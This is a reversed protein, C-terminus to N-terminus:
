SDALVYSKNEPKPLTAILKKTLKIKSMFKKDYIDISYPFVLGDCSLLSVLIQHGYINKGKLHSNHFSCKEIPNKAKSSLNSKESIIDNVIFYIPQRSKRSKSIITNQFM